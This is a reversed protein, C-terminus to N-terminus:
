WDPSNEYGLKLLLDNFHKKFYRRHEDNFHNAWDGAQGKRYHSSVDENGPRRGNAKTEFRNDYVIGFVELASLQRPKIKFPLVGRSRTHLRNALVQLSRSATFWTNSDALGVFRFAELAREYPQAIMDEM